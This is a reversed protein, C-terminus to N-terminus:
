PAAYTLGAVPWITLHLRKGQHINRTPPLRYSVVELNPSLQRHDPTLTQRPPDKKSVVKLSSQSLKATVQLCSGITTQDPTLTCSSSLKPVVQLCSQLLKSLVALPRITLHSRRGPHIKSWTGARVMDPEFPHLLCPACNDLEPCVRCSTVVPWSSVQPFASDQPFQYQLPM